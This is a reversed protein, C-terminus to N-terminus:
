QSWKIVVGEMWNFTSLQLFNKQAKIKPLNIKFLTRIGRVWDLLCKEQDLSLIIRKEHWAFSVNFWAKQGIIFRVREISLFFKLKLSDLFKWINFMFLINLFSDNILYFQTNKFNRSSFFISELTHTLYQEVSIFQGEAKQCSYNSSILERYFSKSQNFFCSVDNPSAIM